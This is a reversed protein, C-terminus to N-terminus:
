AAEESPADLTRVWELTRAMGEALDVTPEWGLGRLRETSLRKVVTQWAPADVEVILDHSAGVLDCAIRAVEVMALANDDRGVNYVTGKWMPLEIALRIGAVTDGVWCWSREAGRHVTIPRGHLANYLFNILAARGRGAPLGPGFPMSLRLITLMYPAYLRCAEEGWRKSLGYVNHPLAFPKTIWGGDDIPYRVEDECALAHPGCDGYIESTSAYALRIDRAGCAKAVTATMATNSIITETVDDEGFLRGVKAALHVVLDPQLRDLARELRDPFVILDEHVSNRCDWGNVDHGHEELERTLHMGIFGASGTVLIRM